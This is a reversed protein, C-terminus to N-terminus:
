QLPDVLYELTRQKLHMDEHHVKTSLVQYTIIINITTSLIALTIAINIEQLSYNSPTIVRWPKM